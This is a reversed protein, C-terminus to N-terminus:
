VLAGYLVGLIKWHFLNAKPIFIDVTRILPTNVSLIFSKCMKYYKLSNCSKMKYFLRSKRKVEETTLGTFIGRKDRDSM